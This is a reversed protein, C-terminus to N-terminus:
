SVTEPLENKLLVANNVLPPVPPIPTLRGFVWLILHPSRPSNDILDSPVYIPVLKL